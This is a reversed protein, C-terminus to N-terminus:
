YQYDDPTALNVSATLGTISSSRLISGYKVSLSTTVAPVTLVIDQTDSLTMAQKFLVNGGDDSIILARSVQNITEFGLVTVTV